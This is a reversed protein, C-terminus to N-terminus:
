ENSQPPRPLPPVKDFDKIAYDAPVVFLTASPEARQIDTLRYTTEGIRPDKTTSLVVVQLESSFWEETVTSIPRQNGM